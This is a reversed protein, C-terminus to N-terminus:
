PLEEFFASDRNNRYSSSNINRNTVNENNNVSTRQRMHGRSMLKLRQKMTLYQKKMKFFREDKFEFDKNFIIKSLSELDINIISNNTVPDFTNIQQNQSSSSKSELAFFSRRSEEDLDEFNVDNLDWELSPLTLEGDSIRRSNNFTLNFIQSDDFDNFLQLENCSDNVFMRIEAVEDLMNDLKALTGTGISNLPSLNLSSYDNSDAIDDFNNNLIFQNCISNNSRDCYNNLVANM